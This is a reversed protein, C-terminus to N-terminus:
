VDSEPVDDDFDEEPLDDFPIQGPWSLSQGRAGSSSKASM